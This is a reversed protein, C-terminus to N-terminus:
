HNGGLELITELNQDQYQSEPTITVRSWPIFGMYWLRWFAMDDDFEPNGSARDFMEQFTEFQGIEVDIASKFVEYVYKSCFQRKSKFKFGLHYGIGLRRRAEFRLTAVQAQNLEGKLRRVAVRGSKSKSVFKHLSTDKSLPITSESVIWEGKQDKFAVGVHSTWGGSARAVRRYLANDIEIFIVDGEALKSEILPCLECTVKDAALASGPQLAVVMLQFAMVLRASLRSLGM